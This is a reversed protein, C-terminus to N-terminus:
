IEEVSIFYGPYLQYYREIIYETRREIQTARRRCKKSPEPYKLRAVLRAADRISINATNIKLKRRAQSLGNMRAGFYAVKLYIYPIEDKTVHQCLKLALIAETIKRRITKDFRGTLVRVLQMAITSAGERRGYRIRRWIVRCVAIPDVGFHFAFRHDEAAVLVNALV